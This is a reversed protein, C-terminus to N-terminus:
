NPIARRALSRKKGKGIADQRVVFLYEPKLNALDWRELMAVINSVDVRGGQEAV